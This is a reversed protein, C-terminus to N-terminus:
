WAMCVKEIQESIKGQNWTKMDRQKAHVHTSSGVAWSLVYNPRDGPGCAQSFHLSIIRGHSYRMRMDGNRLVLFRQDDLFSM